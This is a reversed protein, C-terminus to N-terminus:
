QRFEVVHVWLRDVRRKAAERSALIRRIWTDVVDLEGARVRAAHLRKVALDEAPLEFVPARAIGAKMVPPDGTTEGGIRLDGRSTREHHEVGGIQIADLGLYDGGAPFDYAFGEIERAPATKMEGIRLPVDQRNPGIWESIGIGHCVSVSGGTLHAKGGSRQMGPLSGILGAHCAGNRNVLGGREHKLIGGVRGLQKRELLEAINVRAEHVRGGADEAPRVRSLSTPRDGM